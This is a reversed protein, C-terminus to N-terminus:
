PCPGFNAILALLDVVNVFGDDSFTCGTVAPSSNENYM